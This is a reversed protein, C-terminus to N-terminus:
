ASHEAGPRPRQSPTPTPPPTRSRTRCEALSTSSAVFFCSTLTFGGPGTKSLSAIDFMCHFFTVTAGSTAIGVFCNVQNLVFVSHWISINEFTYILGPLNSSSLCSNNLVGLCAIDQSLVGYDFCLCNPGNNCSFTCFRLCFHFQRGLLFGSGHSTVHNGTM